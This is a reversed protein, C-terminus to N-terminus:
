IRVGQRKAITHIPEESEGPNCLLLDVCTDLAVELQWNAQMQQKLSIPQSTQMFLDIDGGKLQDQTRSGFLIVQGQPDYRSLINKITDIQVPTLRM